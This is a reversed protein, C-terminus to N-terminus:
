ATVKNVSKLTSDAARDSTIATLLRLMNKASRDGLAKIGARLGERKGIAIGASAAALMMDTQIDEIQKLFSKATTKLGNAVEPSELGCMVSVTSTFSEVHSMFAGMNECMAYDVAVSLLTNWDKETLTDPLKFRRNRAM